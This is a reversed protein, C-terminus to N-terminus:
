KLGGLVSGLSASIPVKVSSDLLELAGRALEDPLQQGLRLVLLPLHYGPILVTDPALCALDVISWATVPETFVLAGFAATPCLSFALRANGATDFDSATLSDPEPLLHALVLLHQDYHIVGHIGRLCCRDGHPQGVAIRLDPLGVTRETLQAGTLPTGVNM